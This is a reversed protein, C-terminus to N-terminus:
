SEREIDSLGDEPMNVFSEEVGTGEELQTTDEAEPALVEPTVVGPRCEKSMLPCDWKECLCVVRLEDCVRQTGWPYDGEEAYTCHQGRGHQRKQLGNLLSGRSANFKWLADLAFPDTISSLFTRDQVLQGTTAVPYINSRFDLTSRESM